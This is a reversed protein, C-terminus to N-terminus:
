RRMGAKQHEESMVIFSHGIGRVCYGVRGWRREFRRVRSYFNRSRATDVDKLCGPNLM